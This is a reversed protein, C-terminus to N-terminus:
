LKSVKNHNLGNWRHWNETFAHFAFWVYHLTVHLCWRWWTIDFTPLAVGTIFIAKKVKLGFKSFTKLTRSFILWLFKCLIYGFLYSYCFIFVTLQFRKHQAQTHFEFQCSCGTDKISMNVSYALLAPTCSKLWFLVAMLFLTRASIFHNVETFYIKPLTM